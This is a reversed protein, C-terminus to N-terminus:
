FGKTTIKYEGHFDLDNIWEDYKIGSHNINDFVTGGVKIAEHHGNTAISKGARDSWIYGMYGGNEKADIFLHDGKIGM